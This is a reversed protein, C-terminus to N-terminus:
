APFCAVQILRDLLARPIKTTDVSHASTSFTTSTWLRHRVAALADSFTLQPKLYWAARRPVIGDDLGESAWLTVLSFLGLLAPTTRSIARDSWQRQTEVGLHRRVEAFTGEMSWRRVFYRLIDLPDAELDTCLFGQPEFEDAVDRVLVWRIPVQKGPHYWIATGSIIDLQRESRGYWGTVIVRQWPTSADALREALTPQRAGSVRPRGMTGPRRPPSPDFLRADLRLRTVMTLHHRVAELFEIAAYSHDAVAIVQREPLWRAVLILLQRAWDTLKKHRRGHQCAYRQSPALMTLFPLAWVRGAWPIPALLMLTIWRLGSAKVFHGHSSRVPDRYIGRAKIKSGWRREITEDIGIVLPGDPAFASILLALLRRAVAQSSWRNRNLVRHFNTFTAMERLGMISLASTVTRQGPALLSGAVLVLVHRWTPRTFLAEFTAMWQALIDPVAAPM